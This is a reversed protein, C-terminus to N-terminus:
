SSGSRMRGRAKARRELDVHHTGGSTEMADGLRPPVSARGVKSDLAQPARRDVAALQFTILSRASWDASLDPPKRGHGQPHASAREGDSINKTSYRIDFEALYRHMHAASWHHYTGIVGRKLISFFNEATNSHHGDGRSFERNATFRRETSQRVRQRRGHLLPCRRDHAHVLPAVNTVLAARINTHDINRSTSRVPAVAASSWPSSKRRRRSRARCASRRSAASLPKTARLLRAPAASRSPTTPKTWQRASATAAPVVRNQLNRRAHAGDAQREHGEQSAAMLHTALLWKHLPVHSREMVTGTRSRSSTAATTASSCTRGPNQRGHSHRRQDFWLAPM